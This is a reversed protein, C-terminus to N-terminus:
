ENEMTLKDTYDTFFPMEWTESYHGPQEIGGRSVLVTGAGQRHFLIIYKDSEMIKPFSGQKKNKPLTVKLM